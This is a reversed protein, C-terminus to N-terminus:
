CKSIEKGKKVKTRKQQKTTKNNKSTDDSRYAKTNKNESVQKQNDPAQQSLRRLETILLRKRLAIVLHEGLRSAKDTVDNLSMNEPLPSDLVGARFIELEMRVLNRIADCYPELISMPFLTGMGARRTEHITSLLYLDNGSYLLEGDTSEQPNVLELRHLENLEEENLDLRALVESQSMQKPRGTPTRWSGEHAATLITEITGLRRRTEVDLDDRLTASPSPKMIDGIVKLPLFRNQQLVKIAKVRDALEADYYAMNKSTRKVPEPLLGERIYHKITPAPVGALAALESIKVIKKNDSSVVFSRHKKNLEVPEM